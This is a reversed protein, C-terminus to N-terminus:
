SPNSPVLPTDPQTEVTLTRVAEVRRSEDRAMLERALALREPPVSAEEPLREFWANWRNANARLSIEDTRGRHWQRKIVEYLPPALERAEMFRKFIWLHVDVLELGVNGASSAFAIPITPMGAYDAEPMGPGLSHRQGAARAYFEALTRQARNFQSQQDVVIQSAKRGAGNVRRAIGSMVSQFGILNPMTQLRSNADFANHALQRPNATAWRLADGILQRSRADPLRGIRSLLKQCVTSLMADARVNNTDLRADWARMATEEDFLMAVRALLVYRIPTWYGTWTVAPNLGQDFVQDFFCIIAHDPKAVRYVDFTLGLRKQLELLEGCIAALRTNGLETAHLRPVDLKNRMQEVAGRALLAVNLKSSLVGYYLMPQAPDFLNPGTHGSEDVYFFM